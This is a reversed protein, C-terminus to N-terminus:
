LPPPSSAPRTKTSTQEPTLRASPPTISPLNLSADLPRPIELLPRGQTWGFLFGVLAVVGTVSLLVLQAIAVRPWAIESRTEEPVMYYTAGMFGLLLWLVLLNTHMARATSFPFVDVVEQPVTAFYQVALWLGLVIQLAFLLLAIIFYPYAVRQSEFTM